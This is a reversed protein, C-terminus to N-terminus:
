LHTTLSETSSYDITLRGRSRWCTILINLNVLLLSISLILGGIEHPELFIHFLMINLTVPLLFLSAIFRTQYALLLVGFLFECVGLLQWFYGSQKLGNTFLVIPLVEDAEQNNLKIVKEVVEKTSPNKKFKGFSGYIMWGSLYLTLLLYTGKKLSSFM